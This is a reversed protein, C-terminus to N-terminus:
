RMRRRLLLLGMLLLASTQPEPILSAAFQASVETPSLTRNWIALEDAAGEFQRTAGNIEKAFRATDITFLGYTATSIGGVPQGDLYIRIDGDAAGTNRQWTYAIHHWANLSITGTPAETQVSDIRIGMSGNNRMFTGVSNGGTGGFFQAGGTQNAFIGTQTSDGTGAPRLWYSLSGADSSWGTGVTTLTSGGEGDFSAWANDNEFGQFGGGASLPPASSDPLVSTNQTLSGGGQENSLDSMRYYHQPNQSAIVDTYLTAHVAMPALGAVFLILNLFKIHM